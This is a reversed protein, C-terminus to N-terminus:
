MCPTQLNADNAANVRAGHRLLFRVAEVCADYSLKISRCLPPDGRVHIHAGHEVLFNAIRVHKGSLAAVLPSGYDAVV